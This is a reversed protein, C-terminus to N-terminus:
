NQDEKFVIEGAALSEIRALSEVRYNKEELMDRGPQFSKEIVIGIGIVEAEAQDVLSILANAAEGNALFDDIILVKDDQSIFQDSVSIINTEQKTYSYVPATYLRDTHTLSKRKRAFVM